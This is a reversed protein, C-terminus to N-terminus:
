VLFECSESGCYIYRMHSKKMYLLEALSCIEFRLLHLLILIFTILFIVCKKKNKDFLYM